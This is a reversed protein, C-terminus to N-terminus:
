RDKKIEKQKKKLIMIKQMVELIENDNNKIQLEELDKKLKSIEDTISKTKIEILNDEYAISLKENFKNSQREQEIKLKEISINKDIVYNKNNEYNIGFHIDKKSVYDIFFNSFAEDNKRLLAKNLNFGEGDEYSEYFQLFLFKAEPNNFCSESIEKVFSEFLTNDTLMLYLISFENENKVDFIYDKVITNYSNNNNSRTAEIEKQRQNRKNKNTIIKALEKNLIHIEIGTKKSVDDLYINRKLDDSINAVSELLERTLKVKDDDSNNSSSAENKEWQIKFDIPSLANSLLEQLKETGNKELYSDPDENIPLDVIKTDLGANLLVNSTKFAAKKGPKDGDFMIIVERSNRKLLRAHEETFSTGCLAVTNLFGYKFMSVFDLNGEVLIVQKSKRIGEISHYFGFLTRNKKYIVSEPSNLYKPIDEPNVVRASFASINGLQDYIPFMIRNRFFDYINGKENKKLLGIEIQLDQKENSFKNQYNNWGDLAYGIKFLKCVKETINRSELYNLLEENEGSEFENLLNNHYYEGARNMMRILEDKSENFYKDEETIEGSANYNYKSREEKVEIGLKQAVTKIAEPYNLGEFRMLFNFVNGGVGCGFCKFIQKADSVHFSATKEDHFPCPAKYTAGSRRLEIREGIFDVIDAQTLINEIQTSPIM